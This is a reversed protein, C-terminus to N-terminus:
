LQGINLASYGSLTAQLLMIQGINLASYGSLTAQLLM